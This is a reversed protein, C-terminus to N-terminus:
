FHLRGFGWERDPLDPGQSAGCEVHQRGANKALEPDGGEKCKDSYFHHGQSKFDGNEGYAQKVLDELRQPGANGIYM